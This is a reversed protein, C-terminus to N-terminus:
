CNRAPLPRGVGPRQCRLTGRGDPLEISARVRREVMM